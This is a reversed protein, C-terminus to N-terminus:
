LRLDTCKKPIYKSSPLNPLLTCPTNEVGNLDNRALFKMRINDVIRNAVPIKTFKSIRGCNFVTSSKAPFVPQIDTNSVLTGGFSSKIILRKGTAIRTVHENTNLM